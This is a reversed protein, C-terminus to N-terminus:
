LTHTHTHTHTHSLSLTHTNKTTATTQTEGAGLQSHTYLLQCLHCLHQLGPFALQHLEALVVVVQQLGVANQAPRAVRMKVM